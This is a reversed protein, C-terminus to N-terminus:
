VKRRRRLAMVSILGSGLALMSAPEPVVEFNYTTYQGNFGFTINDVAGVFTNSWGSGFGANVSIVYLTANANSAATLWDPITKLVANINVNPDGFGLSATAWLKYNSAFIDESVWQDTPVAGTGQNYAREFILYGINTSNDPNVRLIGLRLVPHLYNLTTSSSDRYWEYSLHSLQNLTGLASAPNFPNPVFNGGVNAPDVFFEIDAKAPSSSSNFYVSGNGSRAYNTRIGVQGNNRVNNYRWNPDGFDYGQNSPGSNTFLDGPASNQSYVTVTSQAFLSASLVIASCTIALKVTNQM